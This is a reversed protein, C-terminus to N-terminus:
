YRAVVAPAKGIGWGGFRYNMGFRFIYDKLNREQPSFFHPVGAANAPVSTLTNWTGLDVYLFESKISWGYGLSYETGVGVTWGGRWDTQTFSRDIQSNFPALASAALLFESSDIKAYAGGGTVYWLWKDWVAYGLRLRVTSINREKISDIWGSGNSFGFAAGLPGETRQGEKNTRSYDGEIGIVWGGFQYNCGGQAGGIFGSLDFPDVISTGAPLRVVQSGNAVGTGRTAFTGAVANVESRGYSEGGSLGVYCGTWTFVPVPPPPAKLPMDAALAPGGLSTVALAASAILLKKM